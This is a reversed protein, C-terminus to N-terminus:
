LSFLFTKRTFGFINGSLCWMPLGFTFDYKKGGRMQSIINMIHEGREPFYEALWEKFLDKIEYPLRVLTYNAHKAGAESAAKKLINELEKDNIMPIM